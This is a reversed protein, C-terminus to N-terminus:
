FASIAEISMLSTLDAHFVIMGVGGRARERYYYLHRESFLGREEFVTAHGTCVIRNGLTHGGVRIPSFLNPFGTAM